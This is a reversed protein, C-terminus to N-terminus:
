SVLYAGGCYCAGLWAETTISTREILEQELEAVNEQLAEIENQLNGAVESNLIEKLSAVWAEFDAQQQTEYAALTNKFNQLAAAAAQEDGVITNLYNQYETLVQQKYLKFFDDFQATLVSADIQDVVGTVIGCLSANFRQDTINAPAISTTGKTVYIDAIVLDYTETNRTIAPAAPNASASGKLLAIYMERNSLDWRVVIRDIRPLSGDATELTINYDTPNRFAYGNIFAYGAKATLNMGGNVVVQLGTAPNPFIGNGIFTSFYWAWDEAKCVRDHSISNFPLYNAM